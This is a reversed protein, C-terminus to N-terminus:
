TGSPKRKSASKRRTGPSRTGTSSAPRANKPPSGETGDKADPAAATIAEVLDTSLSELGGAKDILEGAEDVTFPQNRWRTRRRAGELCAWFFLQIEVMDAKGSTLRNVFEKTTGLENQRLYLGLQFTANTTFALPYARGAIEITREPNM